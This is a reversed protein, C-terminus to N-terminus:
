QQADVFSCAGSLDLRRRASLARRPASSEGHADASTGLGAGAGDLEKNGGSLGQGTPEKSPSSASEPKYPSGQGQMMLVQLPPAESSALIPWSAPMAPGM